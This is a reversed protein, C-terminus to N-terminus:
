RWSRCIAAGGMAATLIRFFRQVAEQVQAGFLEEGQDIALLIQPENAGAAMRLDGAVREVGQCPQSQPRFPPVVLWGRGARWLRPLVGARLLSSKGSGSAGLLVLLRAGGLTRRARLREILHRIKDDRGYSIAADEEEFTLLDPYPSPPWGLPLRGPGHACDGGATEQTAGPWSGAGTASGAGAPKCRHDPWARWRRDRDGPLDAQRPGPGPHIRRLVM